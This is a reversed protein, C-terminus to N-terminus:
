KGIRKPNVLSSKRSRATARFAADLLDLGAAQAAAGYLVTGGDWYANVKNKGKQRRSWLSDANHVLFQSLAGRVGSDGVFTVLDGLYYVFVGKFTEGDQNLTTTPEHLIGAVNLKGTAAQAISIAAAISSSEGEIEYLGVLGGLIVGQNYTYTPSGNNKCKADLGDNVLNTDNIMGSGRFWAWEKHAWASYVPDKTAHYLATAAYLLLENTIANKYTRQHDWWMGGGCTGDWYQDTLEGFKVKSFELLAPSQDLRYVHLSAIVAWLDDDNGDLGDHNAVAQKIQPLYSRDGSLETYQSLADVIVFRQWAHIGAWSGGAPTSILWGSQLAQATARIRKVSASTEGRRRARTEDVTQAGSRTASMAQLMLLLLLLMRVAPGPQRSGRTM